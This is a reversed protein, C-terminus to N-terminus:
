LGGKLPENAFDWFRSDAYTNNFSNFTKGSMVGNFDTILTDPSLEYQVNNPNTTTSSVRYSSFGQAVRAGLPQENNPVRLSNATGSLTQIGGRLAAAAKLAGTYAQSQTLININDMETATEESTESRGGGTHMTFEKRTWRMGNGTIHLSNYYSSSGATAAIRYPAYEEVSGGHVIVKIVSPNDTLKVRLSGGSARWRSALIPKGDNGAVCYMGNTGDVQIGAEVYDMVVPQNISTLSGDITFEQEVTENAGVSIPEFTGASPVPFIERDTQMGKTEYWYTKLTEASSQTNLEWNESSIGSLTAVYKRVPRITVVGAVQVIELENASLFDRLGEWVNGVFGPALIQRDTSGAEVKIRPSMGVINSIRRAYADLTGGFPPVTHWRSLASLASDVTVNLLGDSSSLNQVVGDFIGRESDYLQTNTEIRRVSGPNTQIAYSLQGFGAGTDHPNLPTADEQVSYSLINPDNDVTIAM